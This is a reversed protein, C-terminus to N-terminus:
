SNSEPDDELQEDPEGLVLTNLYKRYSIKSFFRIIFIFCLIVFLSIEAFLREKIQQKATIVEPDQALINDLSKLPYDRRAWKDVIVGSNIYTLGGNSRNLSIVAKYDAYLIECEEAVVTNSDVLAETAEVTSSSLIYLKLNHNYLTDALEKISQVSKDSIKGADSVSVYFLPGEHQLIEDRVANGNGDIFSLDASSDEPAGGVLATHTDIYTWTSDPLNDITFNEQVGDKEYVFTTEYVREQNASQSAVLDTGPKYLGFDIQPINRISHVQLVVILLTYAALYHWEAKPKAIPMYNKRQFFVFLAMALLVLNKVFTAGNSLHVAQGFCGCDSIPNYIFVFLTILTFVSIFGLSIKSFLNMRLGKLMAVGVVFEATSLLIAVPVSLSNLFDMGFAGFYEKIKLSTGIPDVAKLFGSLVFSLGFIFRCIGRLIRM